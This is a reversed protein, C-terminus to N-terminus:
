EQVDYSLFTLSLVYRNNQTNVVNGGAYVLSYEFPIILIHLLSHQFIFQLMYTLTPNHSVAM